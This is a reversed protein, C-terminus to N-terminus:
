GCSRRAVRRRILRLFFGTRSRPKEQPGPLFRVQSRPVEVLVLSRDLCLKAEKVLVQAGM